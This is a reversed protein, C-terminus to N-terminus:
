GQTRLQGYVLALRRQTDVLEAKLRRNEDTLNEIRRQMSASPARPSGSNIHRGHRVERAAVVAALTEESTYIWQRSVGALRAVTTPTLPEGGRTLADIAELARRRSEAARRKTADRLHVTNDARM